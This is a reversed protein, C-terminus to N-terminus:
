RNEVETIIVRIEGNWNPIKKISLDVNKVDEERIYTNAMRNFGKYLYKERIELTNGKDDLLLIEGKIRVVSSNSNNTIKLKYYYKDDSENIQKAIVGVGGSVDKKLLEPYKDAIVKTEAVKIATKPKNKTSSNDTKDLVIEEWTYDDKILIKKGSQLEVVEMSFIRVSLSILIFLIGRKLM